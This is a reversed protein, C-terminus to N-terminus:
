IMKISMGQKFLQFPLSSKLVLMHVCVRIFLQLFSIRQMVYKTNRKQYALVFKHPQRKKKALIDPVVVTHAVM